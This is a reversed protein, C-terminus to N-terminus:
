RGFMNRYEERLDSPWEKLEEEPVNPSFRYTKVPGHLKNIQANTMGDTPLEVKKTRSGNVKARENRALESRERVGSYYLKM